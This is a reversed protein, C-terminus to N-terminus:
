TALLFWRLDAPGSLRARPAHWSKGREVLATASLLAQKRGGSRRRKRESESGRSVSVAEANDKRGLESEDDSERERRETVATVGSM